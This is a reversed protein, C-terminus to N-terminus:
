CTWINKKRLINDTIPIAKTKEQKNKYLIKFGMGGLVSFSVTSIIHEETHVYM